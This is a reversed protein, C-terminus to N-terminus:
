FEWTVTVRFVGTRHYELFNAEVQQYLGTMRSLAIPPCYRVECLNATFDFDIEKALERDWGMGVYSFDTLYEITYTQGELKGLRIEVPHFGGADPDYHPDNFNLTIAYLPELRIPRASKRRAFEVEQQLMAILRESIAVAINRTTISLPM